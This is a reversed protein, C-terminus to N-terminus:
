YLTQVPIRGTAPREEMQVTDSSESCKQAIQKNVVSLVTRYKGYEPIMSAIPFRGHDVAIKFQIYLPGGRDRIQDRIDSELGALTQKVAPPIQDNLFRPQCLLIYEPTSARGNFLSTIPSISGTGLKYAGYVIDTGMGTLWGTDALTDSIFYHIADATNDTNDRTQGYQNVVYSGAVLMSTFALKHKYAFEATKLVLKLVLGLSGLALRAAINGLFDLVM